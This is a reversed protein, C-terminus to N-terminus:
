CWAAQVSRYRQFGGGGPRDIARFHIHQVLAVLRATSTPITAMDAEVTADAEASTPVTHPLQARPAGAARLLQHLDIMAAAIIPALSGRAPPTARRTHRGSAIGPM